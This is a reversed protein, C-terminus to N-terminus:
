VRRPQSPESPTDLVLFGAAVLADVSAASAGRAGAVQDANAQGLARCGPRDALWSIVQSVLAAEDDVIAGRGERCWPAMVDAWSDVHPGTVVVCGAAAPEIVNHGGIGPVLTGGIFAIDARYYLQGLAGLTDVLVIDATADFGHQSFRAWHWPGAALQRAVSDFRQPHRPAIVLLAEPYQARIEAFCSLWRTEEDDHTSGAVIVPRALSQRGHTAAARDLTDDAALDYKLQGLTKLAAGTAGLTEFRTKDAAGAAAILDIGQLTYRVLGRLMPSDYRSASRPSVSANVLAIPIAARALTDLLNPWLETEIFIACRPRVRTVFRQTAARTDLALYMVDVTEGLAHRATERGTPTMTTLLIPADSRGRLRHILAIALRVEGVSAAHLWVPRDTRTAIWALREALHQRYAPERRSRWVFYLLALPLLGVVVARYVALMLPAARM